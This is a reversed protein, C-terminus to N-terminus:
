LLLPDSGARERERQADPGYEREICKRIIERITTGRDYRDDILRRHWSAPIDTQVMVMKESM